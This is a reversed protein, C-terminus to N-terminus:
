FINFSDSSFPFVRVVGYLLRFIVDILFQRKLAGMLIGQNELNWFLERKTFKLLLFNIQLCKFTSM